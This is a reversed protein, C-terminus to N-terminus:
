NRYILIDPTGQRDNPVKICDQLLMISISSGRIRGLPSSRIELLHNWFGVKNIYAKLSWSESSVSTVKLFSKVMNQNIQLPPNPKLIRKDKIKREKFIIM